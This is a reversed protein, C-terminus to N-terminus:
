TGLSQTKNSTTNQPCLVHPSQHSHSDLSQVPGGRVGPCIHSDLSEVAVGQTPPVERSSGMRGSVRPHHGGERQASALTRVRQHPTLPCRAVAPSPPRGSRWTTEMPVMAPSGRVAQTAPPAQNGVPEESLAVSPTPCSPM